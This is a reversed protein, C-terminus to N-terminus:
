EIILLSFDIARVHKTVAGVSIFDVGTKAVESITDLNIDGSAELPIKGDNIAVAQTKMENPFNDLMVTDAGSEIAVKLEELNEVEVEVPLGPHNIRAQSIAQNIGGCARIHNEKILYADYLGIRHNNGGGCRVAYKQALRLGPVTKRTDLLRCSTGELKTVYESTLTATGSLTQIFNMGSREATLIARANGSIEAIIDGSVFSQSDEKLWQIDIDTDLAKFCGEFWAQGCLVGAEKAILQANSIKEGPILEATIDTGHDITNLDEALAAAIMQDIIQELQPQAFASLYKKAM